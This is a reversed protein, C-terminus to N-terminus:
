IVVSDKRVPSFRELLDLLSKVIGASLGSYGVEPKMIQARGEDSVHPLPPNVVRHDHLERPVLGWRHELPVVSHINGVCLL